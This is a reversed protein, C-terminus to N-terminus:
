VFLGAIWLGGFFAYLLSCIGLYLNYKKSPPTACIFYLLVTSCPILFFSLAGSKLNKGLWFFCLLYIFAQATILFFLTQTRGYLTVFHKRGALHDEKEDRLHNILLISVAWLGCQIGLYILSDDWKLAQLYYAGLVAFPGFFLFCFLESLGTKLLSFRTGTYLYALSCSIVGLFLIPWGGRLILPIGFLVALFCSCIGAFQVQSFSIKKSSVLREPGKRFPSDTGEKADLADNFFNVAIQIFLASCITFFFIYKEFFGTQYFAWVSSMSVPILIAPLTKIRVGKLM